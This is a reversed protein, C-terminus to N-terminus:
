QDGILYTEIQIGCLNAEILIHFGKDPSPKPYFHLICRLYYSLCIFRRHVSFQACTVTKLAVKSLYDILEPLTIVLFLTIM